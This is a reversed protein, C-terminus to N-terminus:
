LQIKSKYTLFMKASERWTNYFKNSILECHMKTWLIDNTLLAIAKHEFDTENKTIFGTVGDIVREKMSGLDQVVCPLGMAQVEAVALCFTEAKDGRYLMARSNRIVDILKEKPLPDRLVIGHMQNARVYDIVRNMRFAVSNGWTGYTIPGSFVYLEAQPVSRKIIKWRDVLWELSRLPNSTFIVKPPPAVNIAEKKVFKDSLGYPIIRFQFLWWLWFSSRHYNGSYVLIPYYRFLQILNSRKLLYKGENHLWFYVKGGAPILPLLSTSRNAIYIDGNPISANSLNCWDISKSRYEIVCNNRVSVEHGMESFANVLEIFATQAGALPKNLLDEYSFDEKDLLVIRM